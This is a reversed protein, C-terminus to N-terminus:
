PVVTPKVDLDVEADDGAAAAAVCVGHITNGTTVTAIGQGTADSTVNDGIALGGAGATVVAKGAIQRNGTRNSPISEMSVGAAPDTAANALEVGDVGAAADLTLLRKAPIASGADNHGPRVGREPVIARPQAM